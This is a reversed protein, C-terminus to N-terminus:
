YFSTHDKTKPLSYALSFVSFMIKFNESVNSSILLMKRMLIYSYTVYLMVTSMSTTLCTYHCFEKQLTRSMNDRLQLFNVYVCFVTVRESYITPSLDLTGLLWMEKVCDEPIISQIM